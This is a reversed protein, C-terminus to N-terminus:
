SSLQKGCEWGWDDGIYGRIGGNGLSFRAPGAGEGIGAGKSFSLRPSSM